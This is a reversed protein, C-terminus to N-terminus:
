SLAPSSFWPKYGARIAFKSDLSITTQIDSTKFKSKAKSIKIDLILNNEENIKNIDVNLIEIRKLDLHLAESSENTKKNSGLAKAINFEGNTDQIIHIYGDKLKLSKIDFKGSIITWLDFGLYLDNIDLIPAKDKNKDQYIKVEELDIAIYPFNTFPSIHSNKLSIEGVFDNNITQVMEKVITDQKYYLLTTFILFLLLPIILVTLLLKKFRSKLM